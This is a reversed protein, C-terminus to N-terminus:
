YRSKVKFPQDPQGMKEDKKVTYRRGYLEASVSDYTGDVKQFPILFVNLTDRPDSSMDVGFDSDGDKFSFTLFAGLLTISTDPGQVLYPGELSKFDVEPIDSVKEFPECSVVILFVVIIIASILNQLTKM